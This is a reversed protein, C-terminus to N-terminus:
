DRWGGPGRLGCFSIESWTAFTMFWLPGVIVLLTLVDALENHRTPGTHSM